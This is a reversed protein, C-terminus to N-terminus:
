RIVVTTWAIADGELAAVVTVSTTGSQVVVPLGGGLVPVQLYVIAGQKGTATGTPGLDKGDDYFPGFAGGVAGAKAGALPAGTADVVRLVVTALAKTTDGPPLGVLATATAVADSAFVPVDLTTTLDPGVAIGALVKPRGSTTLSVWTPSLTSDVNTLSFTGALGTTAEVNGGGQKLARATVGSLALSTSLTSALGSSARTTGEIRAPGSADAVEASPSDKAADGGGGGGGGGGIPGGGGDGEPPPAAHDVPEKCGAVGALLAFVFARTTTM